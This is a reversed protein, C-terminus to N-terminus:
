KKDSLPVFLYDIVYLKHDRSLYVFSLRGEKIANHDIQPESCFRGQDQDTLLDWDTYNNASTAAYIEAGNAIIYANDNADLIIQARCYSHVNRGNNKILLHHWVGATDRYHHHLVALTRSTAWHTNTSDTMYSNLIHVQGKSDTCQSEQNIYGKYYPIKEIYLTPKSTNLCAGTTTTWAPTLHETKAVITDHTDKWTHGDDDSYAYCLDHNSGGGYDDRWCWSVHLKGFCDYDMRNIYPCNNPSANMGQIYRGIFSWKHTAGNYERLYSDSNGSLGFRCEFLMNGDPKNIFRPYTVDYVTVGAEMQSTTACFNSASWEINEPDSALHLVSRSYQLTTNHHDYALHITGDNKCIGMSIVNHADDATNQHPLVVEKWEGQPLKRRAITVNRTANYYVTYQYGNYSILADQQFAQGTLQEQSPLLYATTSPNTEGTKQCPLNINALLASSFLSFSILTSLLHKKMTLNQQL